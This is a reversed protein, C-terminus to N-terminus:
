KKFVCFSIKYDNNITIFSNSHLYKLDFIEQNGLNVEDVKKLFVRGYESEYSSFNSSISKSENLSKLNILIQDDNLKWLTAIGNYFSVLNGFINTSIITKSNTSSFDSFNTNFSKSDIRCEGIELDILSITSLTQNYIIVKEDSIKNINFIKDFSILNKQNSNLTNMLTSHPYEIERILSFEPYNWLKISKEDCTLLCLSNKKLNFKEMYFVKGSINHNQITNEFTPSKFLWISIKSDLGLAFYNDVIRIFSYCLLTSLYIKQPEIDFRIDIIYLIGNSNLVLLNFENIIIMSEFIIDKINISYNLLNISKYLTENPINWIALYGEKTTAALYKENLLKIKQINSMNKLEFSTHTDNLIPNVSDFMINNNNKIENLKSNESYNKYVDLFNTNNNINDLIENSSTKINTNLVKYAPNKLLRSDFENHNINFNSTSHILNNVQSNYNNDLFDKNGTFDIMQRTISDKMSSDINEKLVNTYDNFLSSYINEEIPNKNFNNIFMDSSYNYLKNESLSFYDNSNTIFKENGNEFNGVLNKSEENFNLKAENEVRKLSEGKVLNKNNFFNIELNINSNITQNFEDTKFDRISADIFSTKEEETMLRNNINTDLRELIIENKINKTDIESKDKGAYKKIISNVCNKRCIFYECKSCFYGTHSTKCRACEKKDSVWKYYQYGHNNPCDLVTFKFEYCEICHSYFECSECFLAYKSIADCKFCTNEAKKWTLNHGLICKKSNFNFKEVNRFVSCIEKYIIQHESYNNINCLCLYFDDEECGLCKNKNKCLFCSKLNFYKFEHKNPCVTQIFDYNYCKYCVSYNDKECFMCFNFESCNFCLKDAIWKLQHDHPCNTTITFEFCKYCIFYSDINCYFGFNLDDCEHCEKKEGSWLLNNHFNPCNIEKKKKISTTNNDTRLQLFSVLNKEINNFDIPHNHNNNMNKINPYQISNKINISNNNNLVAAHPIQQKTNYIFNSENKNNNYINNPTTINEFKIHNNVNDYKIYRNLNNDIIEFGIKDKPSKIELQKIDNIMKNDRNILSDPPASSM